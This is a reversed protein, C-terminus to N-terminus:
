AVNDYDKLIITESEGALYGGAVHFSVKQNAIKDLLTSIVKEKESTSIITSKHTYDDQIVIYTPCLKM